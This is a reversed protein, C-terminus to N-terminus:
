EAPKEGGFRAGALRTYIAGSPNLQSRILSIEDVLFEESPSLKATRLAATVREATDSPADDPFRALTLHPSFPRVERAFGIRDLEEDLRAQLAALAASDGELGAWLVRVRGRGGFTGLEALRLTFPSGDRGANLMAQHIDPLLHRGVEGLFKLTLHIGDPKVWRPRGLGAKSMDRQATELSRKWGEPLECAIFLRLESPLFPDNM